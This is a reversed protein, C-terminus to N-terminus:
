RTGAPLCGAGIVFAGALTLCVVATALLDHEVDTALICCFGELIDAVTILGPFCKRLEEDARQLSLYASGFNGLGESGAPVAHLDVGESRCM